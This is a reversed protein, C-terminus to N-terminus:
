NKNKEEILQQETAFTNKIVYVHRLKSFDTNLKVKIHHYNSGPTVYHTDIVGVMIDPPFITSSGRTVISDGQKIKAHKAIDKIQSYQWSQANWKLLGFHQTRKNKVSATFLQNIAPLVSAYHNSVHTVVGILGNPGIVAMDKEIGQISGKNITITNTPRHISSNIVQAPIYLYNAPLNNLVALSSDSNINNLLTKVERNEERLRANEAALQQNVENLDLYKTLNNKQKYFYSVTGASAHVFKSQHYTNYSIFLYIAISQLAVFLMFGYYKIILDLLNKM